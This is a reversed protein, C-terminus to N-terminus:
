EHHTGALRIHMEERRRAARAAARRSAMVCLAGGWCVMAVTFLGVALDNIDIASM